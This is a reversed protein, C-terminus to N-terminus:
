SDPSWAAGFDDGPGFTLQTPDSGDANMVFIRGGATPRFWSLFRLLRCRRGFGSGFRLRSAGRGPILHWRLHRHGCGALFALLSRGPFPVLPAAGIPAAPSGSAAVGM